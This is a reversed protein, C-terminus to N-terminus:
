IAIENNMDEFRESANELAKLKKELEENERIHHEIEEERKNLTDM